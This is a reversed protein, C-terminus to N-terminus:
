EFGRLENMNRQLWNVDPYHANRNITHIAYAQRSRGSTNVLSYHPLLGHLVICTGKKVELPIMGKMSIPEDSLQLLETGGDAKKRFWSRLATQHGGPMAWLCGNEKTADELAYWFGICSEPETYLFSSDQHVDVVGGIKAHKLIYMSQIIVADRLNLEAVLKKMQPSRSFSDFVPDLDHLAHGIKNLSHFLDNKLKGSDDFADKEFFFSIRDGSELFYDDTTRSQNTTQFVSPHGEYNFSSTLEEARRMLDDCENATNFNELILFGDSQFQQLRNKM